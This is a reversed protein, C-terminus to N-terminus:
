ESRLTALPKRRLVDLSSAVGVISVVLAAGLIGTTLLGPAPLWDINFLHRSLGWSLAAGGIAGLTGALLGLLGYEVALMAAVLRSSAGLTRYIAAEYVKQFKTMAVAGILILIGGVLTVLGVVTVGVTVNEIVDRISAIIDRVDIVSVNPYARVLQRQLGGRAAAQEDRVQLFGVYTHPARVVADTPRLVFVFGGSQSDDWAVRRVSTVRARLINARSTSASSIVM